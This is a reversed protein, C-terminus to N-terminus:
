YERWTYRCKLCRFFHTSPEDASRTQEQWTEAEEHGCKPCTRIVKPHISIKDEQTVIILNKELSEKKRQVRKKLNEKDEKAEIKYGCKCELYVKGNIVQKRLLGDCKPCFQIM